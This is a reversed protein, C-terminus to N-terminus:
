GWGFRGRCIPGIGLKVSLPNTLERGCCSCSSTLHGYAVAAAHPDACVAKLAAIDDETCAQTPHFQGAIIKGIYRDNRRVYIVGREWKLKFDALRLTPESIGSEIAKDFAAQVRTVDVESVRTKMIDKTRQIRAAREADEKRLREVTAHQKETLSGYKQLSEYMSAAFGFTASKTVIWSFDEPYEAAWAQLGRVKREAAKARQGARHEPSTKFEHHGRGKCAFCQGLSRGTYSRFTGTGRCKPCKETFRPEAAGGAEARLRAMRDAPSEPSGPNELTDNQTLWDGFSDTM